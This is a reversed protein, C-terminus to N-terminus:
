RGRQDLGADLIGMFAGQTRRSLYAVAQSLISIECAEETIKALVKGRLACQEIRQSPGGGAGDRKEAVFAVVGLAMAGDDGIGERATGLGSDPM